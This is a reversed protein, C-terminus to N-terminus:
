YSRRSSRTTIGSRQRDAMFRDYHKFPNMVVIQPSMSQGNQLARVGEEGGIRNVTKTDLVAEGSKVVVSQEDPAQGIMGGMHFKPQQSSILAIQAAGLATMAGIAVPGLPAVALVNQATKIVADTIAAAKRINFAMIQAERDKKGTAEVIQAVVEFGAGIQSFMVNTAQERRRMEEDLMQLTKQDNEEKKQQLEDEHEMRMEFIKQEAEERARTQEEQLQGSRSAFAEELKGLKEQQEATLELTKLRKIEAGLTENLEIKQKILSEIERDRIALIQEEGDLSDIRADTQAEITRLIDRMVNSLMKESQALEDVEKKTAALSSGRTTATGTTTTATRSPAGTGVTPAPASMTKEMEERFTKADHRANSVIYGFNEIRLQSEKLSENFAQSAREADESSGTLKQILVNASLLATNNLSVSFKFIDRTISGMAVIKETVFLIADVLGTSGAGGTFTEILRILEGKIVNTATATARQFGAMANTMNPGTSVGFEEALTVFAELNDIAGSQIFKPGAQVGFIEAALAAKEEASEVDQLSHFIDKLVEDASRLQQFGDVTKTTAVGLQDFARQATKSGNAADNMLQPLKVLGMELEEFALGSGEAALRLGNLTDVNVGTKTSADVLQNSMDAIHQTFAMVAVGAAAVGASMASFSTTISSGAKSGAKGVKELAREQKRASREAERSAKKYAKDLDNVLKQAEKESVNGVRKLGNVLNQVEARYSIQITKNIDAM